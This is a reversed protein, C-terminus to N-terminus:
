NPTIYQLHGTARPLFPQSTTEQEPGSRSFWQAKGPGEM